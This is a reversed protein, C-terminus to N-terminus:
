ATQNEKPLLCFDNFPVHEDCEKWAPQQRRLLLRPHHQLHPFPPAEGKSSFGFAPFPPSPLPFYPCVPVARNADLVDPTVIKPAGKTWLTQFFYFFWFFWKIINKYLQQFYQYARCQFIFPRLALLDKTM